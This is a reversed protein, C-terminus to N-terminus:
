HGLQPAPVGPQIIRNQDTLLRTAVLSSRHGAAKLQTFLGHPNVADSEIARSGIRMRVPSSGNPIDLNFAWWSQVIDTAVATCTRNTALRYSPVNGRFHEIWRTGSEYQTESIDFEFLHASPETLEYDATGPVGFVDRFGRSGVPIAPGFSIAHTIINSDDVAYVFTHGTDINLDLVGNPTIAQPDPPEIGIVVKYLGLPDVSSLPNGGVYSYTDLGAAIGVPDSELYRGTSPEYNRQYNYHTSTEEDLLQGPLRLHIKIPQGDGDADETPLSWGYADYSASWVSTQDSNTANRPAGLHDAHIFLSRASSAAAIPEPELAGTVRLLWSALKQAYSPRIDKWGAKSVLTASTEVKAVPAHGLYFYHATIRGQDDTEAVIRKSEYLYHTTKGAAQKGVREGAANYV